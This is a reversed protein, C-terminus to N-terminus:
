TPISDPGSSSSNKLGNVIKTIESETISEPFMSKACSPGLYSRFDLESRSLTATSAINKGISAFFSTIAEQVNLEDEVTEDGIVQSMPLSSSQSAPKVVSNIVKWTKRIDKDCAAFSTLYYLSKAKRCM